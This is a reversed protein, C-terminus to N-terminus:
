HSRARECISILDNVQALVRETDDAASTKLARIAHVELAGAVEGVVAFGYGASAGKLQHAVRRVSDWDAAGSCQRLEDVRRPLDNVFLEILEVMDPDSALSSFVPSSPEGQSSRQTSARHDTTGV